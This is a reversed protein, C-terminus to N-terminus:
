GRIEGCKIPQFRPIDEWAERQENWLGHLFCWTPTNINPFKVEHDEVDSIAIEDLQMKTIELTNKDYRYIWGDEVKFKLNNEYDCELYGDKKIVGM